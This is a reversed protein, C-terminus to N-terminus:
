VMFDVCVCVGGWFCFCFLGSYLLNHYDHYSCTLDFVHIRLEYNNKTIANQM